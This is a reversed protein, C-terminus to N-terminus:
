PTKQPPDDPWTILRGGADTKLFKYNLLHIFVRDYSRRNGVRFWRMGKLPRSNQNLTDLECQLNQLYEGLLDNFAHYQINEDRLVQQMRAKDVQCEIAVLHKTVVRDALFPYKGKVFEEALTLNTPIADFHKTDNIWDKCNVLHVHDKIALIDLDSWFQRGEGQKAKIPLNLEVVYGKSRYYREVILETLSDAM